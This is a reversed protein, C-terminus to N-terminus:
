GNDQIVNPNLPEDCAFCFSADGFNVFEVEELPVTTMRGSCVFSVMPHMDGDRFTPTIMSADYRIAAKGPAAKMVVTFSARKM